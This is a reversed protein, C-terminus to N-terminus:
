RFLHMIAIEIHTVLEILGYFFSALQWYPNVGTFIWIAITILVLLYVLGRGLGWFKWDWLRISRVNNTKAAREQGNQRKRVASTDFAQKAVEYDIVIMAGIVQGPGREKGLFHAGGFVFEVPTHVKTVIAGPHDHKWRELAQRVEELTDGKFQERPMIASSKKSLDHELLRDSAIASRNGSIQREPRTVAM